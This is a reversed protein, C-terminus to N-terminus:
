RGTTRIVKIMERDPNAVPRKTRGCDQLRTEFFAAERCNQSYPSRNVAERLDHGEQCSTFLACVPQAPGDEARSCTPPANSTV